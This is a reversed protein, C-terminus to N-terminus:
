QWTRIKWYLHNLTRQPNESPESSTRQPNQPNASPERLTWQPNLIFQSPLSTYIHYMCTRHMMLFSFTNIICWLPANFTYFQWKQVFGISGFNILTQQPNQPSVSPKLAVCFLGEFHKENIKWFNVTKMNLAGRHHIMFLKEKKIIYLVHMYWM